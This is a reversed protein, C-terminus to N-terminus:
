ARPKAFRLVAFFLLMVLVTDGVTSYALWTDTSFCAAV